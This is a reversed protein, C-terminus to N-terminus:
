EGDMGQGKGSRWLMFSARKLPRLLNFVRQARSIPVAYESMQAQEAATM